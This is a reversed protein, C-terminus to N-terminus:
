KGEMETEFVANLYTCLRLASNICTEPISDQRARQFCDILHLIFQVDANNLVVQKNSKM